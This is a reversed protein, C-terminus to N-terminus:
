SRRQPNKQTVTPMLHTQQKVHKNYISMGEIYKMNQADLMNWELADWNVQLSVLCRVTATRLGKGLRVVEHTSCLM